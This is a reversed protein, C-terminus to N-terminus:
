FARSWLLTISNDKVGWNEPNSYGSAGPFFNWRINFLPNQMEISVEPELRLGGYEPINEYYRALLMGQIFMYQGIYKGISVTTNDFYNGVRSNRDVPDSGQMNVNTSVANPLIKTRVSFMDLGLFNRIQREIQRVSIFQNFFESNVVLQALIDTASSLIFRQAADANEIGAIGGLNQGLLSYIELQTLIPNAEFRPVFSFLSENEIIMSITVPGSDTRDRIEARANIRPDFQQDNVRFLLNGQRIYFSRDFYYLEGSRITIDSNLSYQGTFTDAFVMLVTGMEPTARLIPSNKNPWFFEVRAGTTVKMNVTLPIRVNRTESRSQRLEEYNIGLESNNAMLDGSLDIASNDLVLNLKGSADGNALFGKIILDYPVPSERPILIDLGVNKPVWNEFRFWGSATGGGSGVSVAAPAFTMEYGDLALNVPVTRIDERIYAPVKVRVSSARAAGFFQPNTIPGRIDVKGTIYGGAISFSEIPPLIAWFASLDMFFDPCHADIIGNNFKGAMTSRIPMPSSMSAFFNGETDMELQLMDKPGGSVSLAKKNRAISISFADHKLDAYQNKGAKVYGDISEFAQKIDIWSEVPNFKADLEIESKIIRDRLVIGNIDMNAKIRSEGLSIQLLPFVTKIQAYDFNFDRVNLTDGTLLIDGSAKIPNGQFRASASKLMLHANFSKLSDWSVSIDGNLLIEESSRIFRNFRMNSVSALIDVHRNILRGELNYSEGSSNRDAMIIKFQVDSFDNNWLFDAKGSLAGANDAFYLEKIGAGGQDATGTIRLVDGGNSNRVQLNAIDLSWQDSKNYRFTIYFNLYDINGNVPMPFDTGELYFSVAGQPSISGYAHFGSPDRLIITAMDLIQGELNWSLDEYNINFSFVLDALNSFNLNSSILYDKEKIRVIGENVSLRRDTGSLSFKGQAGDTKIIMVPANYVIQNFDTMLFIEATIFTKKIYGSVTGPVAPTKVLPSLIGAIDSICFSDSTLFADLQRTNFNMAAEINIETNNEFLAAATVSVERNSFVAKLGADFISHGFSAKKGSVSIEHEQSSIIFAANIFDSGTLSFNSFSIVGAPSFPNFDMSGSLKVTGQFLSSMAGRPARIYLEDVSISADSGNARVKYLPSVSDNGGSFDAYYRLNKSNEYHLGASGTVPQSLLYNLDKLNNTFRVIETLPFGRCDVQAHMSETKTNYELSSSYRASEDLTRLSLIGGSFVLGFLFDNSEFLTTINGTQRIKSSTVFPQLIFPQRKLTEQQFGSFSSLFVEAEGSQTLISYAGKVAAATKVSLIRNLLDSYVFEGDFKASLLIEKSNGKIEINMEQTLCTINGSGTQTSVSLSGGRIRFDAQEPFFEALDISNDKDQDSFLSSLRNLIERDRELNLKIEPQDIIVSRLVSKKGSLLDKMSFSVRIRSVSLYAIEDKMFKLNRIDFSGFITPRISSYSLEMGTANEIKAIYNDRIQTIGRHLASQVPRMLAASLLILGFFILIKFYFLFSPRKKGEKETFITL